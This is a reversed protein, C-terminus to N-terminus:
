LENQYLRYGERQQQAGKMSLMRECDYWSLERVDEREFLKDLGLEQIGQWIQEEQTDAPSAVQM